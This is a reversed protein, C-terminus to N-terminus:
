STAALPTLGVRRQGLMSGAFDRCLEADATETELTWQFVILMSFAKGSFANSQLLPFIERILRRAAEPRRQEAYLGALECAVAAAARGRGEALLGSLAESWAAEAEEPHGLASAVRGEICRLELVGTHDGLKRFLPHARQIVLLAEGDRGAESLARAQAALARAVLEPEQQEDLLALGERLAVAAVEGEGGALGLEGREVLARGLRRPDEARRWFDLARDLLAIAERRQGRDRALRARHTALEALEVPEAGARELLVGSTELARAAAAPEGAARRAEGLANWARGQVNEVTSLGYFGADLREAVAVALEAWGLAEDGAAGNRASALLTECLVLSRFRDASGAAALREAPALGVLEALLEPAQQREQGLLAQRERGREYLREFIGRYSAPHLVSWRSAPAEAGAVADDGLMWLRRTVEICKACGALLHRVLQRRDGPKLEGRMLRELRETSPHEDSM